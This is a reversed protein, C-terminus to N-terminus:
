RCKCSGNGSGKWVKVYGNHHCNGAMQKFFVTLEMIMGEGWCRYGIQSM